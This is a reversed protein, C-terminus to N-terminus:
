SKWGYFEDFMIKVLKGKDKVFNYDANESERDVWIKVDEEFRKLALKVNNILDATKFPKTIYGSPNLDIV